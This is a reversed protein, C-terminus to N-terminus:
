QSMNEATQDVAVCEMHWFFVALSLLVSKGLEIQAYTLIVNKAKVLFTESVAVVEEHIRGEKVRVKLYHHFGHTPDNSYLRAGAGATVTYPITGWMGKWYGHVHGTYIHSVHYKSFLDMLKGSLTEPLCHDEESGRPDCLPIHMFTVKGGAFGSAQLHSGSLATSKIAM